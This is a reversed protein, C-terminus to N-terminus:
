RCYVSNITRGIESWDLTRAIELNNEGMLRLVELNPLNQLIVKLGDVEDFFLVGAGSPLGLVRAEEPLLLAKGQSLALTVSGSSLTREFPAIAIQSIEYLPSVDDNPVFGFYTKIRNDDMAAGNIEDVLTKDFPRGAIILRLNPNAVEKVAALLRTIGKYRRIEGFLLLVINDETLNFQQRLAQARATNRAYIGIFHGHPIITSKAGLPLALLKEVRSRAEESHFILHTVVRALTRRALIERDPNSSEHSILNHVTWVVKVGRLRVLMVDIMLFLVRLHAKFSNGSWVLRAIWPHIWHIHLIRASPHMKILRLLPFESDPYDAFSVVRSASELGQALLDLYPNGGRWDPVFLVDQSHNM